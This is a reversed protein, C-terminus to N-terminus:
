FAEEVTVEDFRNIRYSTSNDNHIWVKSDDIGITTESEIVQKVRAHIKMAAYPQTPPM